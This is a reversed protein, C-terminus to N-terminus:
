LEIDIYVPLHDSLPLYYEPAFRDFRRVAGEDIDKVFIHDMSSRFPEDRYPGYGKTTCTHYGRSEDAYEVAVDHAHQFGKALVYQVVMSTYGANFDGMLIIPCNYKEQYEDLKEIAIEMQYKRAEDSGEQYITSEPNSSKWWLHTTFLIFKEGSEKIRFVGLNWSKSLSNNFCGEFGPCEEPYLAFASDLLEFKDKRYIIPTDRGWLLAYPIERDSFKCMLEDAMIASVEQCGIIDPATEQYTRFFGEARAKASCDEGKEEWAPANKDCKWLNNCMLRFSGM